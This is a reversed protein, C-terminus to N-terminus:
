YWILGVSSANIGSRLRVKTNPSYAREELAGVFAKSLRRATKGDKGEEM